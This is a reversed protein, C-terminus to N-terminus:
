LATRAPNALRIQAGSLQPKVIGNVARTVNATQATSGVLGMDIDDIWLQAGTAPSGTLSPGHRGTAATAPAVHVASIPTWVGPPIPVAVSTTTLYASTTYWDIAVVVSTVTPSYAWMTVRYSSGPTVAYGTTPRVYAQSPTGVVTLLGAYFGHAAQASSQVFTAATPTWGTVGGEFSGDLAGTISGPTSMRTVTVREGAVRWDYPTSRTSWTERPNATTITWVDSGAIQDAVLTTSASDARTGGHGMVGVDWPRAPSCALTVRWSDSTIEQTWGEVILEPDEGIPGQSPVGTLRIRMGHRRGLWRALLEPRDTLDLTIRPWRSEPQTGLHVRWAAHDPLHGDDVINIQASDPRRGVRTISAADQATAEGGGTRSVTWVNRTRLDDHTPRPVDGVDGDPAIRATLWVDQNYRSRRPRYVIWRSDEYLVGGDAAECERLLDVATAPAQRGMPETTVDSYSYIAEDEVGLDLGQEDALRNIRVGALEGAWGSSVQRYPGALLSTDRSGIWLHSALSGAVPAHAIVQGARDVGGAFSGSTSYYSGYPYGVQHWILTWNVNAGADTTRLNLGFWRGPTISYPVVASSFVGAGDADTGMVSFGSAGAFILYRTATGMCSIEMIATNAVPMSPLKFYALASWGTQPIRWSLVRGVIRSSGMTNLVAAASAGPPCDTAGFSVDVATAALGRPLESSASTADAGDELPWYGQRASVALVPDTSSLLSRLPSALVQDGQSLMRMPGSIEIPAWSVQATEDWETPWAPIYGSIEVAEVELDDITLPVGDNANAALRWLHVGVASGACVTEWTYLESELPPPSGEPWATWYLAPGDWRARVRIRQGPVYPISTGAALGVLIGDSYRSIGLEVQGAPTLEASFMLYQLTTMSRRAIVSYRLPAGTIPVPPAVITMVASGNRADAGILVAGASQNAAAFGRQGTGGSAGWAGASGELSWRQGLEPTGWGGAAPTDFSARGTVVGWRAPCNISLRGYWRGLPNDPCYHGGANDVSLQASGAEIQSVEDARGGTATIDNEVHRVDQSRDEWAWNRRVSLDAGPAIYFRARDSIDM